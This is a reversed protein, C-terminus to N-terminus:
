YFSRAPFDVPVVLEDDGYITFPEMDVATTRDQGDPDLLVANAVYDGPALDVSTEFAECDDEFEDVRRGSLTEVVIDISAADGQMCEAPDTNGDITWDVTLTGDSVVPPAAHGHDSEVFCAPVLLLALVALAIKNMAEKESVEDIFTTDTGRIVSM